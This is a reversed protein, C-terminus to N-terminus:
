PLPVDKLDFTFPLLKQGVVLEFEVRMTDDLPQGHFILLANGEGDEDIRDTLTEAVVKGAATLVRVRALAEPKGTTRVNMMTPGNDNGLRDEMALSVRLGAAALAPDDITKKGARTLPKDVTVKQRDGSVALSFRGRLRKLATAKRPAQALDFRVEIEDRDDLSPSLNMEPQERGPEGAAPVGGGARLAQRLKQLSSLAPGAVDSRALLDNGADDAAEDVHADVVRTAKRTGGGSVLFEVTTQPPMLKRRAADDSTIQRDERISVRAIVAATAAAPATAPATAPLATTGAVPKRDRRGTAGEQGNAAPISSAAGAGLAVAAFIAFAVRRARGTPRSPRPGRPSSPQHSFTPRASHRAIM